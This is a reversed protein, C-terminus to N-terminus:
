KTTRPFKSDEEVFYVVSHDLLEWQYTGEIPKLKQHMHNFVNILQQQDNYEGMFYIHPTTHFDQYMPHVIVRKFTM